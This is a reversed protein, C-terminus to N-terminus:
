IYIRDLASSIEEKVTNKKIFDFADVIVQYSVMRPIKKDAILTQSINPESHSHTLSAGEKKKIDSVLRRFSSANIVKRIQKCMNECDGAFNNFMSYNDRFFDMTKEPSEIEMDVKALMSEFILYLEKYNYCDVDIWWNFRRELGAQIDFVNSKILDKYGAIIYVIRGPNKTIDNCIETWAEPGFDNGYTKTDPNVNVISYAEDIFLVGGSCKDLLKSTKDCTSGVFSGVIDHKSAHHYNNIFEPKESNVSENFDVEFNNIKGVISVNYSNSIDVLMEKVEPIDLPTRVRDMKKVISILKENATHVLSYIEQCRVQYLTNKKKIKDLDSIHKNTKIGGRFISLTHSSDEKSKANNDKVPVALANIILGLIYALSSKGVGPPGTIVINNEEPKFTGESKEMIVHMVFEVVKVKVEELGIVNDLKMIADKLVEPYKIHVYVDPKHSKILELNHVLESLVRSNM